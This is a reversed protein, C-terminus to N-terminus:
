PRLEAIVRSELAALDRRWVKLADNAGDRIFHAPRIERGITGYGGRGGRPGIGSLGISTGASAPIFIPHPGGSQYIALPRTADAYGPARGTFLGRIVRGRQSPVGGPGGTGFEIARWYTGYGPTDPNVVRDLVEEPAVGVNGTETGALRPLRRATTRMKLNPTRGTPGRGTAQIYQDLRDRMSEQAIAATQTAIERLGLEYDRRAILLARQTARTLPPLGAKQRALEARRALAINELLLRYITTANNVVFIRQYKAM